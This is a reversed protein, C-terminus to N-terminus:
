VRIRGQVRYLPLSPTGSFMPVEPKIPDYLSSLVSLYYVKLRNKYVYGM